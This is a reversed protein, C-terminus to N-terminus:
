ALEELVEKITIPDFPLILRGANRDIYERVENIDYGMFKILEEAKPSFVIENGQVWFDVENTEKIQVPAEPVDVVPTETVTDAVTEVVTETVTDAVTETEDDKKKNDINDRLIQWHRHSKKVQQTMENFVNEFTSDELLEEIEKDLMESGKIIRRKSVEPLDQLIVEKGNNWMLYKLLLGLQENDMNYIVAYKDYKIGLTDKVNKM